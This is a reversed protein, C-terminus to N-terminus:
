FVLPVKETGEELFQGGKREGLPACYSLRRAICDFPQCSVFYLDATSEISAGEPATHPALGAVVEGGSIM